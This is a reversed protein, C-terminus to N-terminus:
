TWNCFTCMDVYCCSFVFGVLAEYNYEVSASFPLCTVFDSRGRGGRGGLM